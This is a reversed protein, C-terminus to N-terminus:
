RRKFHPLIIPLSEQPLTAILQEMKENNKNKYKAIGICAAASLVLLIFFFLHVFNFRGGILGVFLMIISVILISISIANPKELKDYNMRAWPEAHGCFKCRCTFGATRFRQPNNQDLVTTLNAKLNDVAHGTLNQDLNIGMVSGTHASAKITDTALNDKGCSSCRYQIDVALQATVTEGTKVRM